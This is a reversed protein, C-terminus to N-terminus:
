TRTHLAVTWGTAREWLLLTSEAGERHYYMEQGCLPTIRRWTNRGNTLSPNAYSDFFHMWDEVNGCVASRKEPMRQAVVSPEGFKATLARIDAEDALFEFILSHEGPGGEYHRWMRLSRIGAPPDVGFAERFAWDRPIQFVAGCCLGIATALPLGLWLPLPEGSRSLDCLIALM